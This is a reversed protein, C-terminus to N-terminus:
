KALQENLHDFKGELRALRDLIAKNETEVKDMDARLTSTRDALLDLKGKVESVAATITKMEASQAKMETLIAELAKAEREDDVEVKKFFREVLKALLFGIGAGGGGIGGVKAIEVADNTTQVPDAM